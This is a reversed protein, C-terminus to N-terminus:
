ESHAAAKLWREAILMAASSDVMDKSIRGRSQRVQQQNRQSRNLVVHLTKM